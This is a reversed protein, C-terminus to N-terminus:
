FAFTYQIKSAARRDLTAFRNLVPDDLWNHTYVVYIDSGPTIIWRFKSQWGLVGSVTDHQVTNTVYAWPSFQTEAVLRYLRTAFDGEDLRVHNLEADFFVVVGRRPRVALNIGIQRRHGSFFQGAEVTAIVALLRRNATSAQFRVRSYDYESGTPLTISRSIAFPRDLREHTSMVRAEFADQTQFDARFVVADLERLLLENGATDYQLDGDIGFAYQRVRSTRPRPQFRFTPAYRRYGSRLTFGVAPDYHEQVERYSLGARYRDNPYDVNLGYAYNRGTEVQNTTRLVYGSTELNQNGLFSATGLQYDLGLTNQATAAGGRADRRTYLMGVFSQRLMRRRVRLVTFDEGLSAGEAATRIQLIGIDQDGLQGTLKAGVDIAQPEGRDNLGIRRSFFPTVATDAGDGMRGGQTSSVFSFFSAGELFFGRKEPFFLSYRTLNVQRQDVETQAFDTNVTLNSRLKPTVNYFLDLGADAKVETQATGRGPSALATTVGYPRVDLGKGQTVDSIGLLLGANQLRNLGQNYAWGTWLSDENRRRVTRVFNVGWATVQPDFNLMRFPIEIEITWGIDSRRVHADWIGDWERNVQSTASNLADAMLGSPNMEFFYGNQATLFPDIVWMFRDDARLGEDRKMTNGLMKEPESDFCTVAMYLAETSFAFRVETRETAPAGNNPAQQVFDAAPDAQSWVPENFVGDLVIRDQSGLRVATVTRREAPEASPITQATATAVTLLIYICAAAGAKTM